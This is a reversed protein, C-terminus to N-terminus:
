DQLPTIPTGAAPDYLTLRRLRFYTTWFLQLTQIYSRRASDKERQANFLDTIDIRGILYRNKAVEFRRDAVTDAKAAIAVQQQLQELGLAEFYVEQEIEERSLDAQRQVREQNALASAVQARGQGWRFVPMQFGIRFQQQDLPDIYAGDFTEASQNLGYSATLNASFGSQTRAQAVQSEAQLEDLELELLAARNQRAQAVAEAPDVDLSPLRSPPVIEVPEDYPLDLALKFAQLAEAQEILARSLATQANLLALESELLENEAITGIEYRGQALTYITDNVAANARAIEVDIEAVYVDFFRATVDIAVNELDETYSRRAARYRLPETRRAWKFANYQFIPQNLEVVLPRSQWQTQNLDGFENNVRGLGSRVSIESGTFPIVQSLVVDLASSTRSEQVYRVAGDDQQIESISRRLGPTSGQLSLGPLFQSRYSQYFWRSSELSLQAIEAAPAEAKARAISEELTLLRQQAQALPASCLLLLTTSCLLLLPPSFLHLSHPLVTHKM